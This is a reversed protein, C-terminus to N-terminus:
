EALMLSDRMERVTDVDAGPPIPVTEPNAEVMAVRSTQIPVQRLFWVITDAWLAPEGNPPGAAPHGAM